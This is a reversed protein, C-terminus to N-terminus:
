EFEFSKLKNMSLALMKLHDCNKIPSAFSEMKSESLSARELNKFKDIALNPFVKIDSLVSFITLVSDDNFDTLHDGDINVLDNENNITQQYLVCTYQNDRVEYRCTTSEM